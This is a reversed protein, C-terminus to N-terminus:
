PKENVAKIKKPPTKHNQNEWKHKKKKKGKLSKKESKRIMTVWSVMMAVYCRCLSYYDGGGGLIEGTRQRKMITGQNAIILFGFQVWRPYVWRRSCLVRLRTGLCINTDANAITWNSSLVGGKRWLSAGRTNRPTRDKEKARIRKWDNRWPKM